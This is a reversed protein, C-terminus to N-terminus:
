VGFIEAYRRKVEASAASLEFPDARLLKIQSLPVSAPKARVESHFSRLNGSDTLMQQCEGSFLYSAFLRAANPHPAQQMVCIQGSFIPTGEVAYVPVIPEGADRLGLVVYETGDVQISREGQAVKKPPDTASQQQMVRQKALNEFYAWGLAKEVAYTSNLIAGSYSPHAKVMRMRWQPQLLDMFGKPADEPKVQKSNYAIVVCTARVSAFCGDADREEAPWFKAVDEPVYAALWDKKKWEVFTGSDSGEVVDAAHINSGYEQSIRQLTREAGTRELQVRVGPYLANFGAIMKQCVSLDISTHFVVVGEKTAAAGLESTVPASPPAAAVQAYARGLQLSAALGLMTVRRGVPHGLRSMAM